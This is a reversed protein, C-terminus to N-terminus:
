WMLLGISTIVTAVLDLWLLWTGEPILCWVELTLFGTLCKIHGLCLPGKVLLAVSDVLDLTGISIVSALANSVLLVAILERHGTTSRDKVSRALFAAPGDVLLLALHHILCDDVPLVFLLTCGAVLLLAMAIAVM